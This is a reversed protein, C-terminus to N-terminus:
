RKTQIKLFFFFSCLHIPWVVFFYIHDHDAASDMNHMRFAADVKGIIEKFTESSLEAPGQFGEWLYAGSLCVDSSNLVILNYKFQFIRWIFSLYNQIKRVQNKFFIFM